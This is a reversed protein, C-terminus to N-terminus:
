LFYQWVRELRAINRGPFCAGMAGKEIAEGGPSASVLVAPIACDGGPSGRAERM